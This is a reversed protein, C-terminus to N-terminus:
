KTTSFEIFIPSNKPRKSIDELGKIGYKKYRNVFKRVIIRSTKLIKATKRISNTSFYFFITCKELKFLM